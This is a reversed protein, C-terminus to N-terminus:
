SDKLIGNQVGLKVYWQVNFNYQIGQSVTFEPRYIGYIWIQGDARGGTWWKRFFFKKSWILAFAPNESEFNVIKFKKRFRNMLYKQFQVHYCTVFFLYFHSEQTKPFITIGLNKLTM